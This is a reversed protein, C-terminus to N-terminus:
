PNQGQRGGQLGAALQDDIRKLQDVIIFLAREISDLRREVSEHRHDLDGSRPAPKTPEGDPKVHMEVTRGLAARIAIEFGPGVEYRTEGSPANQAGSMSKNDSPNMAESPHDGAV